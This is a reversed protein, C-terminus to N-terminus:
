EQNQQSMLYSALTKKAPESLKDVAMLFDGTKSGLTAAVRNGLADMTKDAVTKMLSSGGRGAMERREGRELFGKVKELEGYDKRAQEYKAMQEPKLAKGMAENNMRSIIDATDTAAGQPRYMANKAASANLETAKHANGMFTGTGGKAIEERARNLGAMGKETGSTYKPELYQKVNQLIEPMQPAQGTVDAAKRAGGIAEGAATHLQGVKEELGIPGRMPSIVGKDIMSQAIERSEPIGVQGLQGGSAGMAKIAQNQGFRKAYQGLTNLLGGEEGTAIAAKGLLGAGGKALGYLGSPLSMAGGATVANEALRQEVPKEEGVKFTDPSNYSADVSAGKDPNIGTIGQPVDTNRVPEPASDETEIQYKGGDTEIEYTAM